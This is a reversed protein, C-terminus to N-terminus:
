PGGAGKGAVRQFEALMKEAYIDWRINGEVFRRGSDAMRACLAPDDMLRSFSSAFAGPDYAPAILADVGDTLVESAGCGNSVVVPTGCAMAEFVSLGWTQPSHPFAFADASSYEEVLAKETIAGLFEVRDGIGSRAVLARIQSSYRPDRGEFGAIRLRVDRGEKVMAAVALVVDEFRRHPFFIGLTFVTFPRTGDRGARPVSAFQSLDLGSRVIRSKLCAHEELLRQNYRDLVVISDIARMRSLDAARGIPGGLALFHGLSKADQMTHPITKRRVSAPLDNMMWVVPTGHRRRHVAAVRYARHEHCNVVDFGPGVMAALRKEDRTFLPEAPYGIWGLRGKAEHGRHLSAVDLGDLLSTYCSARDLYACFVKVEHGSAVLHRCMELSQRQTGGKIDLHWVVVAIKVASV